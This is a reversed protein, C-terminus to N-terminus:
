KESNSQPSSHYSLQLAGEPSDSSILIVWVWKLRTITVIRLLMEAIPESGLLLVNTLLYCLGLRALLLM